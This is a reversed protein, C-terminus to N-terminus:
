QKQESSHSSHPLARGARERRGEPTKATAAGLLAGGFVEVVRRVDDTPFFWERGRLGQAIGQPSRVPRTRAAPDPGSSAGMGAGQLHKKHEYVKTKGIGYRRAVERPDDGRGLEAHIQAAKPHRAVFCNCASM